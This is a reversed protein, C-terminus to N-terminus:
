KQEGDLQNKLWLLLVTELKQEGEFRREVERVPQDKKTEQMRIVGSRLLKPTSSRM